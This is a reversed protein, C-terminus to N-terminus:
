RLVARAGTSRRYARLSELIGASKVGPLAFRRCAHEATFMLAVLPLTLYNAFTSWTQLSASAFLVTSVAVVVAFFIAWAATIRRTYAAVEPALPRGRTMAAFQSCLPERGPALTRGFLCGLAGNFLAHELYLGWEYHRALPGHLVWLVAAVAALLPLLVGRHPSRLAFGLAVIATPALVLALGLGALGPTTVARHAGIEYALVLAAGAAERANSAFRNV